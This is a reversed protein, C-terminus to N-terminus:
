NRQIFSNKASKGWYKKIYNAVPRPLADVVLNREPKHPLYYIMERAEDELEKRSISKQLANYVQGDPTEFRYSYEYVQRNNVRMLTKSKGIFTGYGRVGGKLIILRKRFIYLQRTISGLGFAIFVFFVLPKHDFETQLNSKGMWQIAMIIFVLSFLSNANGVLLIIKQLLPLKESNSSTRM